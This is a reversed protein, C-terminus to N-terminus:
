GAGSKWLSYFFQQTDQLFIFSRNLFLGGRMHTHQYLDGKANKPFLQTPIIFIIHVGSFPVNLYFATRDLNVSPIWLFDPFDIITIYLGKTPREM